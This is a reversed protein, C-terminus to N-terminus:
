SRIDIAIRKPNTPMRKPFWGPSYDITFSEIEEITRLHAEAAKPDDGALDRQLAAIQEGSIVARAQATADIRYRAGDASAEIVAPERLELSTPDLAFGDPASSGLQRQLEATAQNLADVRNYILATVSRTATLTITEADDGVEHDFRDEAESTTISSPLLAIGDQLQDAFTAEARKPLDTAARDRLTELDERAVVPIRRDTGGGIPGERNSYYVGSPLRGGLEGTQVNGASGADDARVKGTATGVDNAAPDGAPVKVNAVFAFTIGTESEVATGKKITIADPGPNSLSLTGEAVADPERRSGTTQITEKVPVTLTRPTATVAMDADGAPAGAAAVALVVGGSLPQRRPTVAIEAHPLLLVVIVIALLTLAVASAAWAVPSRPRLRTTWPVAPQEVLEPEAALDPDAIRAAPVIAPPATPPTLQPRWRHGLLRRGRIAVTAKAADPSVTADDPISAASGSPSSDDRARAAGDIVAEPPPTRPSAEESPPAPEPKAQSVAATPETIAISRPPTAAPREIQAPPTSPTPQVLNHPRSRPATEPAPPAPPAPRPVARPAAPREEASTTLGLMRALQLRLPDATGVTIAIREQDVAEKLARFEAATLFLAAGPPIELRVQRGGGSAVRIRGLVDTLADAPAVIVTSTM